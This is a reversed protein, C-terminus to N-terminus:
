WNVEKLLIQQKRTSLSCSEKATLYCKRRRREPESLKLYSKPVNFKIKRGTTSPWTEESEDDGYYEGTEIDFNDPGNQEIIEGTETDLTM